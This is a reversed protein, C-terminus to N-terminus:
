DGNNLKEKLDLYIEPYNIKLLHVIKEAYPTKPVKAAEKRAEAIEIDINTLDRKVAMLRKFSKHRFIHPPYAKRSSDRHPDIGIELKLELCLDALERKRAGLVKVREHTNLLFTDKVGAQSTVVGASKNVPSLTYIDIM